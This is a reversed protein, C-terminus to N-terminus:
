ESIAKPQRSSTAFLLMMLLSLVFGAAAGIGAWQLQDPKVASVSPMKVFRFAVLKDDLPQVSKMMNLKNAWSPDIKADAAKQVQQFLTQWKAILDANLATKAQQNASRILDGMLQNAEVSSASQLSLEEANNVRTLTVKAALNKAVETVSLSELEAQQKVSPLSALFETLKEPSSFFRKFSEYSEAAVKSELKSVDLADSSGSVLSYTSYLSFYNGLELAKPQEFQATAKWQAPFKESGMFGAGAGLATLLVTAFLKRFM